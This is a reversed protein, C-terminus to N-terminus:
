GTSEPMAGIHVHNHHNGGEDTKWICQIRFGANTRTYLGGQRAEEIALAPPDGAAILCAAALADGVPGDDTGGNAVMGFDCAHGSAHDSVNGNVTLYSHNTGTTCIIPSGYIGAVQALFSLTEPTVPQGPDNAGPAILVKGPVGNNTSSCMTLFGNQQNSATGAPGTTTASATTVFGGLLEDALPGWGNFTALYDAYNPHQVSVAVALLSMQDRNAVGILADYFKNTSYIPDMIQAPTGWGQSPRQQFLGLSDASGYPLNYLRSEQLSVMLAVKADRVSLGRSSALGIIIRANGIQESDLDKVNAVQVNAPLAGPDYTTCSATAQPALVIAVIMVMGAPIMILMTFLSAFGLTVKKM